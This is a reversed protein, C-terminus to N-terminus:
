QWPSTETAGEDILVPNVNEGWLRMVFVMAECIDGKM